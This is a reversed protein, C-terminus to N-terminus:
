LSAQSYSKKFIRTITLWPTTLSREGETGGRSNENRGSDRIALTEHM